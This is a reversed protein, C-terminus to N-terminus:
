AKNEYYPIWDTSIAEKQHWYALTVVHGDKSHLARGFITNFMLDTVGVTFTETPQPEAADEPKAPAAKPVPSPAVVVTYKNFELLDQLFSAREKLVNKEVIACKVGNLEEATHNQNIAM